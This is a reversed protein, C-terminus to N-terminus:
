APPDLFGPRPARRRSGSGYLLRDAHAMLTQHPGSVGALRAMVRHLLTPPKTWPCTVLCISCDTGVQNWFRYCREEDLKWKMIGNSETKGGHPIAGSPCNDACIKCRECFSQVGIDVPDDRAIPMDTTVIALRVGLGFRRTLLFGARSLEGLGCDVAVPVALVRYNYMHHARASFGLFRIYRALQVSAWASAAYAEGTALITPFDPASQVLRHNMRFGLAVANLHHGLDVPTGRPAFGEANGFSRGAHSYVWEQRLPGVGVLDAGLIRAFAKIKLAARGPPIETRRAVPEGDVHRESAITTITRAMASYMAADVGGTSGLGPLHAM